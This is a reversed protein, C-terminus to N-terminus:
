IGKLKQRKLFVLSHTQAHRLFDRAKTRAYCYRTSAASAFRALPQIPPLLLDPLATM